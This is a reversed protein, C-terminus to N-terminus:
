SSPLVKMTHPHPCPWPPGKRRHYGQWRARDRQAAPHGSRRRRTDGDNCVWVRTLRAHPPRVHGISKQGTPYFNFFLSKTSDHLLRVKGVKNFIAELERSDVRSSLGSIHLNNGPNSGGDVSSCQTLILPDNSFSFSACGNPKDDSGRNRKPSRSRSSRRAGPSGGRRPPTGGGDRLGGAWGDDGGNM